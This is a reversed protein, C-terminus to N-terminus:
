DGRLAAEIDAPETENMTLIAQFVREAATADDSMLGDILARPVIQWSVGCRDALWACRGEEGGDATLAEWLRDTEAQDETVVSISVTALPAVETGGTLSRTRRSLWPSISSWPRSM